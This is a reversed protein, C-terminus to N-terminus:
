IAHRKVNGDGFTSFRTIAGCHHKRFFRSVTILKAMLFLMEPRKPNGDSRSNEKTM